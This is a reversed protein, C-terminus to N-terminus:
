WRRTGSSGSPPTPRRPRPRARRPTTRRRWRSTAKSRRTSSRRGAAGARWAQVVETPTLAGPMVPIGEQKCWAVTPADFSPSVVFRAGADRCARATEPDLVTGAGLVVADGFRRALQAIVEVAGPVTMTVEVVDIGGALIADAVAIAEVASPTRIIPVIGTARIRGLTDTPGTM